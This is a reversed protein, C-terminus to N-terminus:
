SKVVSVCLCPSSQIKKETGKQKIRGKSHLCRNCVASSRSVLSSRCTSRDTIRVLFDSIRARGDFDEASASRSEPCHDANCDLAGLKALSVIGVRCRWLSRSWAADHIPWRTRPWLSFVESVDPFTRRSLDAPRNRDYLSLVRRRRATNCNRNRRKAAAYFREGCPDCLNM